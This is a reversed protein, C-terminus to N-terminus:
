KPNAAYTERNTPSNQMVLGSIEAVGQRAMVAVGGSMSKRTREDGASDSDSFVDVVLESTIEGQALVGFPM